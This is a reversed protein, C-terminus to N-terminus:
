LEFFRGFFDFIGGSREPAKGKGKDAARTLNALGPLPKLVRPKYNPNTDVMPSQTIPDIDGVAIGAAVKDDLPRSLYVDAEGLLM